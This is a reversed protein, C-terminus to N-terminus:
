VHEGGREERARRSASTLMSAALETEIPGPSVANVTIGKPALELAMLKTLSLVGGKAAGYAAQGSIGTHAALSSVNVIRGGGQRVMARAAEQAVIFYGTLNVALIRDWDEDTTELFPLPKGVAANNVLIDLRGFHAGIGRVAAAVQVRNTVDAVVAHAEGGAAKIQSCVRDVGAATRDLVAVRAGEAALRETVAQGIGGAAGTVLAVKDSLRGIAPNDGPRRQSTM